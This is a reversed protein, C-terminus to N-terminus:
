VEKKQWLTFIKLIPKLKGKLKTIALWLALAIVALRGLWMQFIQWQTLKNVEVPVEVPYPVEVREYIISDKVTSEIDKTANDTARTTLQGANYNFSQKVREGQLTEVRSLLVQNNSDCEFFANLWASDPPLQITEIEKVVRVKVDASDKVPVTVIQRRACGASAVILISIFLAKLM